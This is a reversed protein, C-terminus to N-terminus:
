PEEPDSQAREGRRAPGPDWLKPRAKAYAEEDFDDRMSAKAVVALVAPAPAGVPLTPKALTKQEFKELFAQSAMLDNFEKATLRLENVAYVKVESHKRAIGWGPMEIGM